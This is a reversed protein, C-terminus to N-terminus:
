PAPDKLACFALSHITAMDPIGGESKSSWEQILVLAEEMVKLREALPNPSSAANMTETWLKADAKRYFWAIPYAGVGNVGVWWRARQDGPTLGDHSFSFGYGSGGWVSPPIPTNEAKLREIEADKSALAALLTRLDAAFSEANTRSVVPLDGLGQMDCGDALWRLREVAAQLDQDTTM